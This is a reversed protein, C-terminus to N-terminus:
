EETRFYYTFHRAMPINADSQYFQRHLRIGYTQNKKLKKTKLEFVFTTSDQWYEKKTPFPLVGEEKLREIGYCGLMPHSFRIIVRGGQLTEGCAPYTETVYPFAANYEEVVRDFDSATHAIFEMLHPMYERVTPYIDRNAYFEDMQRVAREMWIFGTLQDWGISRKMNITDETPNERFYMLECLNNFWETMMVGPEGYGSQALHDGVYSFMKLVAPTLSDDWAEEFLRNSFLHSLEHVIRPVVIYPPYSPLGRRDSRVGMVIGPEIGGGTGWAYNASGNSLSAVVIPEGLEQGFFEEFWGTDIRALIEDLRETATRYLREHSKYFEAFDSDRYFDDLLVVYQAYLEPTWRPDVKGIDAPDFGSGVALGGDCLVLPAAANMVADYGIGHCERLKQAYEVAEHNAYPAFYRDIDKTYRPLANNQYEPAGSLRFLISSAEFVPSTRSRLQARCVSGFGCLFILFIFLTKKMFRMIESSRSSM